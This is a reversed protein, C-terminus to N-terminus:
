SLTNDTFVFIPLLGVPNYDVDDERKEQSPLLVYRKDLNRRQPLQSALTDINLLFDADYSRM